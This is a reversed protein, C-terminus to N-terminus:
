VLNKLQDFNQWFSKIGLVVKGWVGLDNRATHWYNIQKACEDIQQASENIQEVQQERVIKACQDIHPACDKIHGAQEEAKTSDFIEQLLM